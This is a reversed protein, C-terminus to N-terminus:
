KIVIEEFFGSVKDESNAKGKNEVSERVVFYAVKYTGSERLNAVYNNNRTYWQTKIRENDKYLYFAYEVKEDNAEVTFIYDNNDKQIKPDTVELKNSVVKELTVQEEIKKEKKGCGILTLVITLAIMIKKM